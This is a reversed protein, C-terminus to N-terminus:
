RRKFLHILIRKWWSFSRSLEKIDLYRQYDSYRFPLELKDNIFEVKYRLLAPNDGGEKTEIDKWGEIFAKILQLMGQMDIFGEFYDDFEKPKVMFYYNNNQLECANVWSILLNIASSPDDPRIVRGFVLKDQLDFAFIYFYIFPPPYANHRDIIIDVAESFTLRYIEHESNAELM